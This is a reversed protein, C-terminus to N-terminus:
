SLYVHVHSKHFGHSPCSSTPMAISPVPKYRDFHPLSSMVEEKTTLLIFRNEEYHRVKSSPPSFDMPDSCTERELRSSRVEMELFLPLACCYICVVSLAWFPFVYQIDTSFSDTLRATQIHNQLDGLSTM